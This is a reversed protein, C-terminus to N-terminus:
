GDEANEYWADIMDEWEAEAIKQRFHEAIVDMASAFKNMQQMSEDFSAAIRQREGETMEGPMSLVCRGRAGREFFKAQYEEANM